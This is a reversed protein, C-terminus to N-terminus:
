TSDHPSSEPSCRPAPQCVVDLQRFPSGRGSTSGSGTGQGPSGQEVPRSGEPQRGPALITAFIRKKGLSAEFMGLIHQAPTADSAGMPIALIVRRGKFTEEKAAYWRDMFAKFQASPAWWYVPTGFVWVQSRSMKDLADFNKDVKAIVSM